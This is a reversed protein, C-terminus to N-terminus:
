PMMIELLEVLIVASLAVNMELFAVCKVYSVCLFAVGFFLDLSSSYRFVEFLFGM